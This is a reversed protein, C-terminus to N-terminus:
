GGAEQEELRDTAPAPRPSLATIQNYLAADMQFDLAALSPAVQAATRGSIIPMPAAAHAAVWAVALTAPEVGREAALLSLQRATEHMWDQGYRSNYRADENLRGAVNTTTYKGTLLGGGLPSYPAIAINQDSCMPLIEVEAQRKVLSYMPQLIDTALGFEAGLMQAKMVQWAAFNSLGMYSIEGAAKRAALWALTERLDTQEDFRHLYLIDLSDLGLRRRSTDFQAQMNAAGAGGSYGVKSAIILQEREDKILDGLIEESQGNTYVWATDFHNVGVARCAAYIEASQAADARGGFQMTGFAFRSAPTGDPSKLPQTM